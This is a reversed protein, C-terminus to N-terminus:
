CLLWKASCNYISQLARQYLTRPEIGSQLQTKNKFNKSYM